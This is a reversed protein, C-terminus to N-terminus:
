GQNDVILGRRYEQLAKMTGLLSEAPVQRVLEETKSDYIKLILVQIDKDMEFRVSHQGSDTLERIRKLFEESSVKSDKGEAKKPTADRMLAQRDQQVKEPSGGPQPHVRTGAPSVTGIQMMTLEEVADAV